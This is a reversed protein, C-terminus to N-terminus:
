HELRNLVYVFYSSFCYFFLSGESNNEQKTCQIVWKYMEMNLLKNQIETPQLIKLEDREISNLGFGKYDSKAKHTLVYRNNNDTIIVDLLNKKLTFEDKKLLVWLVGHYILGENGCVLNCGSCNIM